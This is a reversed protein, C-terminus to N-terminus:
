SDTMRWRAFREINSPLSRRSQSGERFWVGRNVRVVCATGECGSAERCTSQSQCKGRFYDLNSSGPSSATHKRRDLKVRLLKKWISLVWDGSM